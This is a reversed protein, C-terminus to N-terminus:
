IFAGLMIIRLKFQESTSSISIELLEVAGYKSAIPLVTSDIIATDLDVVVEPISYVVRCMYTKSLISSINGIVINGFEKLIDQANEDSPELEVMGALFSVLDRATPVDLLLLIQGDIDGGYISSAIAVIPRDKSYKEIVQATDAVRIGSVRAVVDAGTLMKLAETIKEGLLRYLATHEYEKNLAINDM